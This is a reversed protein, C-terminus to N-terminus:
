LSMSAQWNWVRGDRGVTAFIAPQVADLDDVDTLFVELATVGDRVQFFVQAAELPMYVFNDDYDFIGVDFIAAIQYDRMRPITGFATVNGQPAVLTVSDGLGVGFRDAMRAGIAVVGNGAFAEPSLLELRENLLPRELFDEPRIGRM